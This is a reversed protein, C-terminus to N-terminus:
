TSCTKVKFNTGFGKVQSTEILLLVEEVLSRLRIKETSLQLKFIQIKAVFPVSLEQRQCQKSDGVYSAQSWIKTSRLIPLVIDFEPKWPM